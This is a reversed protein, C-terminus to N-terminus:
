SSDNARDGDFGNGRLEATSGVHFLLTVTGHPILRGDAVAPASVLPRIYKLTRNENTACNLLGNHRLRWGLGDLAM